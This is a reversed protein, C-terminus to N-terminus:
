RSPSPTIISATLFGMFNGTIFQRPEVHARLVDIQNQQYDAWTTTVFRKWELMLGPNHGGVPIPIENWDDYTQSWYATTWRANLNDLTGYKAKLWQRFQGRTEDDYSMLAYGYENDIQWGV